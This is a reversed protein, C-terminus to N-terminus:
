GRRRYRLVPAGSCDALTLGFALGAYFYAEESAALADNHASEIPDHQAFPEVVKVAERFKRRAQGLDLHQRAIREIIVSVDNNNAVFVGHIPMAWLALAGLEQLAEAAGRLDSGGADAGSLTAARILRVLLPSLGEAGRSRHQSM